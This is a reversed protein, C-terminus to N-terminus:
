LPFKADVEHLFQGVTPWGPSWPRPRPQLSLERPGAAEGGRGGVTRIVAACTAKAEMHRIGPAASREDASM